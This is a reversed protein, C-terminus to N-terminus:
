SKRYVAAQDVEQFGLKQYLARAAANGSMTQAEVRMAGADFLRRLSESLLFTALGTRRQDAVVSLDRLGIAHVGWSMSLPEMYWFTAHALQEGTTRSRLEYRTHDFPGLTCADWWSTSPPDEVVDVTTSRRIELQRRDVPARYTNLDRQFIITRDIERYGASLYLKQAERDSDLVGPLESGGYLGLYFPNLPRIAGAYLVEAGRAILYDEGRRLLESGIGLRRYEHRVMLMCTVGATHCIKSEDETPGFASHVFGVPQDDELAVILGRSDFYPKALVYRDLLGVSM